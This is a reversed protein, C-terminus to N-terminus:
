SERSQLAAPASVLFADSFYEDAPLGRATFTNFGLEVMHPNGCAYVQYGSLDAHDALVAEHVLGTRGQWHDEPAPGSLVPIFSFNDHEQQWRAPLEGMYLDRLSKVGWYLVMRRKIGAQFARELMGKIPAFGCSSALFIVPKDSDERLFFSGLPGEFRLTNGEKMESFVHGTFKGGEVRRIHLELSAQDHPANALSFSRPRGDEALINIFQGALFEFREGEPLKLNLVMVDHAAREMKQVQASLTRVPVNKLADFEQCKIELDSLPTACCFLAKGAKKEEDSLASKQYAGYDVKGHLIVGKCVGCAGDRCMYPLMVEQRLAAELITEGAKATLEHNCPRSTILFENAARKVRGLWPTILFMATMGLVLAWLKWPSWMYLLPYIWLYFWDLELQAPVMSLNAPGQSVAPKILALALLALMMGIAIAWPPNIKSQPVRQTHVFALFLLSLPIGIHMFVLLSFLRDNVSGEFLFNRVLPTSFIPLVDLWETTAVVTFQALKDWVLWYGNVGAMYTLWLLAVGSVWSFWRFNRYRDFVFNRLMHTISFIVMGDSAYRHLSRMIGGLYWQTHTLYEVSAYAKTVGTNYFAYVYFGSVLVVWFMFFTIAGLYYMPNLAKGFITNLGNELRLFVWQGALQIRKIM